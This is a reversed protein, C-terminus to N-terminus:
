WSEFGPISDSLSRNNLSGSNQSLSGLGKFRFQILVSNEADSYYDAQERGAVLRVAYCCSEYEIGIKSELNFGERTRDNIIAENDYLSYYWHALVRWQPAIKWYASAELQEYESARYSYEFNAIHFPDSKYRLRYRSEETRGNNHPNYMLSYTTDWNPAFQSGIEAAISSSSQTDSDSQVPKGNIYHLTVERDNFYYIQGISAKFREAGSEEDIFRTTLGATLQNADGLRDVGNFRDERFLQSHSFSTRGTDFLPMDSQDEEPVNLYFLRPELTQKMSTNFLSLGKDFFLGSDLSFIPAIRNPSDDDYIKDNNDLSYTLMDLSLKPTIFSYSNRYPLSIHPRIHLRSAELIDDELSDDWNQAFMVFESNFGTDIDFGGISFSEDASLTLQPLRSYTQTAANVTTLEQYGQAKAMFKFLSGNYNVSGERLLHSTSKDRLNNGFDEIYYKDSVYNYDVNGSWGNALSARQQISFAGRNESVKSPKVQNNSDIDSPDFSLGERLLVETADRRTDFDSDSLGEAYFEGSYNETLYRYEGGLMLGRKSLYTPTITADQNPAINFYYPTALEFGNADSNGIGPMLFGSQREDNLPFRIYPTYFFPVGKFKMVAHTGEGYGEETHFEMSSASILWDQDDAPCTSYTMNELSIEGPKFRINEAIGQASDPPLSYQANEVQGKREDAQYRATDGHLLLGPQTIIVNGQADFVGSIKNYNAKDSTIKHDNKTIIVDGSFNIQTNDPTEAYDADVNTEDSLPTNNPLPEQEMQIACHSWMKNMVPTQHTVFDQSINNEYVSASEITKNTEIVQTLEATNGAPQTSQTNDATDAIPMDAKAPKNNTAAPIIELIEGNAEDVINGIRDDSVKMAAIDCDWTGSATTQCNWGNSQNNDESSANGAILLASFIFALQILLKVLASPKKIPKIVSKIM